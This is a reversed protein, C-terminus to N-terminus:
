DLPDKAAARVLLNQLPAELLSAPRARLLNFDPILKQHLMTPPIAAALRQRFVFPAPAESIALVDLGPKIKVLRVFFRIFCVVSSSMFGVRIWRKRPVRATSATTLAM